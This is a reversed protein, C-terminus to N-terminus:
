IHSNKIKGEKTKKNGMLQIVKEADFTTGILYGGVKLIDNSNQFFTKLTIDDEYFYTLAFNCSAIDYQYKSLLHTKYIEEYNSNISIDFNPYILKRFDGLALHIQPKPKPTDKYIQLSNELNNSSNDVGFITELKSNKWSPLDGLKGFGIDFLM